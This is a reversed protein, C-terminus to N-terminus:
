KETRDFVFDGNIVDQIIKGRRIRNTRSNTGQLAAKYYEQLRGNEVSIGEEAKAVRDVLEYFEILRIGVDAPKIDKEERFIARHIEVILTFLDSKRWARSKQSLECKDIFDFVRRFEDELRAKEEFEDNYQFLNSEFESELNFYASMVTIVLSLVYSVDKMRRVDTASFVKHEEFFSNQSLRDAFQKIEGDFRANHIEMANLSYNTSNIRQFIEKIEDISKQGLDRIVVEYELFNVKEEDTLDSYPTIEKSLKLDSSGEFYQKLTTLRQQGDVLMETGEGTDPDVMGAAIYVEPFPYGDLVTQIFANKHNESWVLRRQFEPRPILTENRIDTLLNRIKKNTASTKM